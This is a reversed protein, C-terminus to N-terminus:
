RRASTRSKGASDVLRAAVDTVTISKGLYVMHGQEYCKKSRLGFLFLGTSDNVPVLFDSSTAEPKSPDYAVLLKKTMIKNMTM